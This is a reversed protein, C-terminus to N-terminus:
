KSGICACVTVRTQAWGAPLRLARIQGQMSVISQNMRVDRPSFIITNRAVGNNARRERDVAQKIRGIGM